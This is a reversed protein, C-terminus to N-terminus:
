QKSQIDFDLVNSGPEVEVRLPSRRPDAYFMPTMPRGSPAEGEMKAPILRTARITVKYPGALAGNNSGTTISYRGSEDLRGVAPAGSGSEPYFFVTGRVDAGGGLPQGDMRVTGSVSAFESGCGALYLSSLAILGGCLRVVLIKRRTPM